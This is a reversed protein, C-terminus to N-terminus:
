ASRKSSLSVCTRKLSVNVCSHLTLEEGCEESYAANDSRISGKLDLAVDIGGDLSEKVEHVRQLPASIKWGVQKPKGDVIDMAEMVRTGNNLDIMFEHWPCVVVTVGLDEIDLIEGHTLPAGAHYCIADIAHLKGKKRLVTVFRGDLQTDIKGGEPISTSGNEAVRYWVKGGEGEVAHHTDEMRKDAGLNAKSTYYQHRFRSNRRLVDWWDWWDQVIKSPLSVIKL